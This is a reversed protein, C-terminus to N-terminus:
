KKVVKARWNKAESNTLFSWAVIRTSKNGTGMPITRVVSAEVKDLTKYIGKLNSQKSVLTTFWLCNTAFRESEWIMNQIFRNEGGDCVLENNKGATVIPQKTVGGGSLNKAKRRTGKEAEEISAHFPPNCITVDFKDKKTIIGKFINVRNPQIRCAIHNKLVDNAQILKKASDLSDSDIDTAVFKWDYEVVGIIPYICSAGTGIDLCSVANGKPIEGFNNERLLDAVYHIYDARGPIPPCLNGDPFNWNDIGFDHSLLAQNLLKVAKPNSFDVTDKDYRNKVVFKALEPKSEIMASLDYRERNRNRPHLKSKIEKSSDEM